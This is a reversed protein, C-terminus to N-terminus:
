YVFPVTEYGQRNGFEPRKLRTGTETDEYWAVRSLPIGNSKLYKKIEARQSDHKQNASSVRLYAGVM